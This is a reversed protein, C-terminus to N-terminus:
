VGPTALPLNSPSFTSGATSATFRSSCPPQGLWPSNCGQGARCPACPTVCQTQAVHPSGCSDCPLMHVGTGPCGLEPYFWHPRFHCSSSDAKGTELRLSQSALLSQFPGDPHVSVTAACTRRLALTDLGALPRALPLLLTVARPDWTKAPSSPM